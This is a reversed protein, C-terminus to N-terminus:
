GDSIHSDFVPFMTTILMEEVSIFNFYLILSVFLFKVSPSSFKSLLISVSKGVVISFSSISLL